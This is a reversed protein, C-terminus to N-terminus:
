ECNGPSHLHGLTRAYRASERSFERFSQTAVRNSPAGRPLRSCRFCEPRRPGYISPTSYKLTQSLCFFLYRSMSGASKAISYEDASTYPISSSFNEGATVHINRARARPCVRPVVTAARRRERFNILRDATFDGSGKGKERHV